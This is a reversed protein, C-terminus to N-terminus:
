LRDGRLPARNRARKVLLAHTQGARQRFRPFSVGPESGVLITLGFQEKPAPSPRKLRPAPPLGPGIRGLSSTPGLVGVAPPGLV